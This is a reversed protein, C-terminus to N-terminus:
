PFFLLICVVSVSIAQPLKRVASSYVIGVLISTVFDSLSAVPVQLLFNM